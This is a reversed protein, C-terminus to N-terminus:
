KVCVSSCNIESEACVGARLFHEAIFQELEENSSAIVNLNLFHDPILLNPRRTSATRPRVTPCTRVRIMHMESECPSPTLPGIEAEELDFKVFNPSGERLCNQRFEEKGISSNHPTRTDHKRRFPRWQMITKREAGCRDKLSRCNRNGMERNVNRHNPAHCDAGM